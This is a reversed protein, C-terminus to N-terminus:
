AAAKATFGMGDQLGLIIATERLVDSVSLWQVAVSRTKAEKVFAYILQVGAADVRSLAESQISIDVQADLIQSLTQHMMEAEAIGLSGELVLDGSVDVVDAVDDAAPKEGAQKIWDLSDNQKEKKGM